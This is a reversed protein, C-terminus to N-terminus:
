NLCRNSEEGLHAFDVSMHISREAREGIGIYTNIRAIWSGSLNLNISSFFLFRSSFVLQVCLRQKLVFMLFPIIRIPFFRSLFYHMFYTITFHWKFLLCCCPFFFEIETIYSLFAAFFEQDVLDSLVCFIFIINKLLIYQSFIANVIKCYWFILIIHASTRDANM